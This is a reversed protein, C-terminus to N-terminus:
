SRNTQSKQSTTEERNHKRLALIDQWLARRLGDSFSGTLPVLRRPMALLQCDSSRSRAFSPMLAPIGPQLLAPRLLLRVMGHLRTKLADDAIAYINRVQYPDVSINYLEYFQLGDGRPNTAKFKWNPDYETYAL